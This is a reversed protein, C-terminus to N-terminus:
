YTADPRKDWDAKTANNRLRSMLHGHKQLHSPTVHNNVTACGAGVIVPNHHPVHASDVTVVGEFHLSHGARLDLHIDWHAPSAETRFM